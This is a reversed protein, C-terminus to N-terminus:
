QSVVADRLTKMQGMIKASIRSEEDLRKRVIEALFFYKFEEQFECRFFGAFKQSHDILIQIFGFIEYIWLSQKPTLTDPVTLDLIVMALWILVRSFEYLGEEHKVLQAALWKIDFRNSPNMWKMEVASITLEFLLAQRALAFNCYSILLEDAPSNASETTSRCSGAFIDAINRTKIPKKFKEPMAPESLCFVTLKRVYSFEEAQLFANRENVSETECVFEAFLEMILTILELEDSRADAALNYSLNVSSTLCYKKLQELFFEVLVFDKWFLKKVFYSKRASQLLERLLMFMNEVEGDSELLDTKLEQFLFRIHEPKSLFIQNEPDNEMSTMRTSKIIYRAVAHKINACFSSTKSRIYLDLFHTDSISKSSKKSGLRNLNTDLIEVKIHQTNERDLGNLFPVYNHEYSVSVIDSLSIQLKINKPPSDILRLNRDTLLVYRETGNADIIASECSKISEYEDRCLRKVLFNDLKPNISAM